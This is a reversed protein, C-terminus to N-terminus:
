IISDYNKCLHKTSSILSNNAHFCAGGYDIFMHLEETFLRVVNLIWGPKWVFCGAFWLLLNYFDIKLLQFSTFDNRSHTTQLWEDSKILPMSHISSWTVMTVSVDTLQSVRPLIICLKHTNTLIWSHQAVLRPRSRCRYSRVHHQSGDAALWTVPQEKKGAKIEM